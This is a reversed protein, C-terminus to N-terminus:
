KKNKSMKRKQTWYRKKAKSIRKCGAESTKSGKPRGAKKKQVLGSREPPRGTEISPPNDPDIEVKGVNKYKQRYTELLSNAYRLKFAYILSDAGNTQAYLVLEAIDDADLKNVATAIETPSTYPM